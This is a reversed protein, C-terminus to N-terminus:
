DHLIDQTSLMHTILSQCSELLFTLIPLFDSPQLALNTYPLAVLFYILCYLCILYVNGTKWHNQIDEVYTIWCDMGHPTPSKSHTNQKIEKMHSELWLSAQAMPVLSSELDTPGQRDTPGQILLLQFRMRVWLFCHSTTGPTWKVTKSHFLYDLNLLTGSHSLPHGERAWKWLTQVQWEPFFGAQPMHEHSHSCFNPAFFNFESCLEM